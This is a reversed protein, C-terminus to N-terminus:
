PATFWAKAVTSVAGGIIFTAILLKLAREPVVLIARAGLVTGVLSGLLLLGLLSWSIGGAVYHTIGAPVAMILGIVINSGVVERVTMRFLYLMSLIVLSGSGISTTGLLLGVVTQFVAIVLITGPTLAHPSFPKERAAIARVMVEMLILVAVALLVAAM